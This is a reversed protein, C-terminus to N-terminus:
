ILCDAHTCSTTAMCNSEWTQAQLWFKERGYFKIKVAWPTTTLRGHFDFIIELVVRCKPSIFESSM